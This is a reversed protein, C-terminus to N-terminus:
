SRHESVHALVETCGQRLHVPLVVVDMKQNLVRRRHLEGFQHVRQFTDGRPHKPCLVLDAGMPVVEPGGRVEGCGATSRREVNDPPVDLALPSGRLSHLLSAIGARFSRAQARWLETV